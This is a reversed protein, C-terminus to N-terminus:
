VDEHRRLYTAFRPLGSSTLERYRYTITTGIAPPERRLADSLGCGIVVTPPASAAGSSPVFVVEASPASAIEASSASAADRPTRGRAPVGAHRSLLLTAAAVLLRRREISSSSKPM